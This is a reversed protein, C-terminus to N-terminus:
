CQNKREILFRYLQINLFFVLKDIQKFSNSTKDLLWGDIGFKNLEELALNQLSSDYFVSNDLKNVLCPIPVGWSRQRSICWQQREVILKRISEKLYDPKFKIKELKKLAKARIDEINIFWQRSPRIIVPKKTRWDIAM